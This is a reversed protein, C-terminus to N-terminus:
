KGGCSDPPPSRGARGAAGSEGVLGVPVSPKVVQRKKQVQDAARFDASNWRCGLACGRRPEPVCALLARGRHSRGQLAEAFAFVLQHAPRAGAIAPGELLQDPSLQAPDVRQEEPQGPVVLVGLVQGLLAEHAGPAGQRAQALALRQRRPEAADGQVQRAVVVARAGPAPVGLLQRLVVLRAVLGAARRGLLEGAALQEPAQAVCQLAQGLPLARERIQKCSSM